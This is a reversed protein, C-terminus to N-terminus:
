SMRVFHHAWAAVLPDPDQLLHEKHETFIDKDIVIISKMAELRETAFPSNLTRTLVPLGRPDEIKGLSALASQRIEPTLGDQAFTVLTPVASLLRKDGLVKLITPALSIMSENKVAVLLLDLHHDGLRHIIEYYSSAHFYKQSALKTLLLEAHEHSTLRSAHKLAAQRIAAREDDLLPFLQEAAIPREWLDLRSIAELREHWRRSRLESLDQEAFRYKKYLQRLLSRESGKVVLLLDIIADRMIHYEQVSIVLLETEGDELIFGVIWETFQKHRKKYFASHIKNYVILTLTIVTSLILATMMLEMMYIVFDIIPDQNQNNM